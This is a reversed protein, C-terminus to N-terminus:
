ECRKSLILFIVFSALSIGSIIFCVAVLYSNIQPVDEYYYIGDLLYYKSMIEVKIQSQKDDTTTSYYKDIYADLLSDKEDESFSVDLGVSSDYGSSTNLFNYHNFINFIGIIFTVALLVASILYIIVYTIKKKSM